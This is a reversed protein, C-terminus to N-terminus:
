VISGQNKMLLSYACALLPKNTEPYGIRDLAAAYPVWSAQQIGEDRQVIPHVRRKSLFLYYTVRKRVIGDRRFDYEIEGLFDVIRLGDIGVEEFIERSATDDPKEGKEIIGKPFTWIGNMDRILLVEWGGRGKHFIVGGASLEAKM